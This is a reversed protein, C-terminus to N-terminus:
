QVALTNYIKVTANLDITENHQVMQPFLNLIDVGRTVNYVKLVL